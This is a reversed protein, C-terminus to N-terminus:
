RRRQQVPRGYYECWAEKGVRVVALLCLSVFPVLVGVALGLQAAVAASIVGVLTPVLPRAKRSLEKRLGAYSTSKTCLLEHVQKCVAHWLGKPVGPSQRASLHAVEQRSKEMALGFEHLSELESGIRKLVRSEAPGFERLIDEESFDVLWKIM